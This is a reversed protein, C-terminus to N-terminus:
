SELSQFIHHKIFFILSGWINPLDVLPFDNCTGDIILSKGDTSKCLVHFSSTLFNAFFNHWTASTRHKRIIFSFAVLWELLQKYWTVSTYFLGQLASSLWPCFVPFRNEADLQLELQSLISSPIPMRFVNMLGRIKLSIKHNHSITHSPAVDFSIVLFYVSAQQFRDGPQTVNSM